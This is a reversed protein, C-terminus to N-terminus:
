DSMIHTALTSFERISLTEPRRQPDIDLANLAELIKEKGRNFYDTAKLANLLTKRRRLFSTRVLKEFFIEDTVAVLPKDRVTFAVIESDVKPRPYFSDKTVTLKKEVECYLQTFISITGYARTGPQATLRDAVEKQIMVLM